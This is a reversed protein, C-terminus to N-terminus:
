VFTKDKTSQHCALTTKTHVNFSCDNRVGWFAVLAFDFMWLEIINRGNKLPNV